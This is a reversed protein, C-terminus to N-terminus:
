QYSYYHITLKDIMETTAGDDYLMRCFGDLDVMPSVGVAFTKNPVHRFLSTKSSTFPRVTIKSLLSPNTTDYRKPFIATSRAVQSTFQVNPGTEFVGLGNAFLPINNLSIFASLSIVLIIALCEM